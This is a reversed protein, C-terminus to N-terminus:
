NDNKLHLTGIFLENNFLKNLKNQTNQTNDNTIYKSYNTSNHKDYLYAYDVCTLGFIDKVSLDPQYFLLLKLMKLDGYAIAYYLNPRGYNDIENILSPNNDLKNKIGNFNNSAISYYLSM